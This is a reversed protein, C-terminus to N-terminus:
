LWGFLMDVISKSNNKNVTVMEITIGNNVLYTDNDALSLILIGNQPIDSNYSYTVNENVPISIYQDGGETISVEQFNDSLVPFVLFCICSLSIIILTKLKM